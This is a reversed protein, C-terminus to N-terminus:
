PPGRMFKPLSIGVKRLAITVAAAAAIVGIVFPLLQGNPNEWSWDLFTTGVIAIVVVSVGIVTGINSNSRSPEM